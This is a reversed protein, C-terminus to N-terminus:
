VTARAFQVKRQNCRRKPGGASVVNRFYVPAGFTVGSVTSIGWLSLFVGTARDGDGRDTPLIIQGRYRLLLGLM